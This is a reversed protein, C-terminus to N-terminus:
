AAGVPPNAGVKEIVQALTGVAWDVQVPDVILPPCLRVTNPGCGLLLLGQLFCEDVIKDRLDAAPKRSVKDRIIEVGGMLGVGRIDGVIPSRILGALKEHMRHGMQRCHDLLGNKLLEITTVAAACSIPNGGFTTAHAGSTWSM